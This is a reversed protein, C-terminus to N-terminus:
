GAGGASTLLQVANPGGVVGIVFIAISTIWKLKADHAAVQQALNDVKATLQTIATLIEDTM